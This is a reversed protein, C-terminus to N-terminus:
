SSILAFQALTLDTIARARDFERILRCIPRYRKKYRLFPLPIAWEFHFTV